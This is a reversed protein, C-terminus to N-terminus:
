AKQLRLLLQFNILTLTVKECQTLLKKKASLSVCKKEEENM